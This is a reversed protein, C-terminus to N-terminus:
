NSLFPYNSLPGSKKAKGFKYMGVRCLGGQDTRGQAQERGTHEKAKDERITTLPDRQKYTTRDKEIMSETRRDQNKARVNSRPQM